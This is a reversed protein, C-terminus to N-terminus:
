RVVWLLLPYLTHNDPKASGAEVPTDLPRSVTTDDIGRLVPVRPSKGGNNGHCGM